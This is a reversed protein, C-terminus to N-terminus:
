SELVVSAALVLVIVFMTVGSSSRSRHSASRCSSAATRYLSHGSGHNSIWYVAHIIADSAIGTISTSGSLVQIQDSRWRESGPTMPAQFRGNLSTRCM